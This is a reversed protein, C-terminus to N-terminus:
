LLEILEEKKLEEIYNLVEDIVSETAEIHLKNAVEQVILNITNEGNCKQWIFSEMEEMVYVCHEGQIITNEDEKRQILKVNPLRHYIMQKPKRELLVSRSM